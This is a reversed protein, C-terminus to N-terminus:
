GGPTTTTPSQIFTDFDVDSGLIVVIEAEAGTMADRETPTAERVRGVDLDLYNAILYANRTHTGDLDIIETTEHAQDDFVNASNLDDVPYGKSAIFSVIRAALGSTGTANQVQVDVPDVTPAASVSVAQESFISEVIKAIQDEDGCLAAEGHPGTCPVTAPGISVANINDKVQNALLGYGVIQTDSIDTQIADKYKGWLDPAKALVNLSKAKEITAFIVRQQRQIRDLDDSSFRIRSYALATSGDMHQTGPYFHQPDYDGPLESESYRPDYVEDPVDVDVGGLADIIEEFGAFDVMVYTNIDISFDNSIVEKLLEMGGQDYGNLEGAVYVTNIRDEYTGSGSRYPIDVWLDRPIGLIGTTKTKPDVHVIFITDTRSPSDGDRPRRDIGVVLINIPDQNGSTGEDDVGPLAGSLAQGGPVRGLTIQNGPFFISDVRTIIVLALYASVVAFIAVAAGILVRQGKSSAAPSPQATSM